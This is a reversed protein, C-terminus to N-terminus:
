FRFNSKASSCLWHEVLVSGRTRQTLAVTVGASLWKSGAYGHPFSRLSEMDAIYQAVKFKESTPM